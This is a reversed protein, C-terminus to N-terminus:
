LNMVKLNKFYGNFKLDLIELLKLHTTLTINVVLYDIINWREQYLGSDEWDKLSTNYTFFLIVNM